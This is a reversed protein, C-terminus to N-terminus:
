SGLLKRGLARKLKPNVAQLMAVNLHEFGGRGVCLHCRCGHLSPRQFRLARLIARVEAVGDPVSQLAKVTVWKRFGLHTAPRTVRFTDQMADSFAIFRECRNGNGCQGIQLTVM